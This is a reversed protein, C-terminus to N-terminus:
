IVLYLHLHVCEYLIYVFVKNQFPNITILRKAASIKLNM